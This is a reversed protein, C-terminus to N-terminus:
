NRDNGLLKNSILWPPVSARGLFVFLHLPHVFHPYVIFSTNVNVCIQKTNLAPSPTTPVNSPLYDQAVASSPQTPESHDSPM